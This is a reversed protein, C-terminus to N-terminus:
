SPKISLSSLKKSTLSLKEIWAWIDNPTKTRLESIIDDSLIKAFFWGVKTEKNELLDLKINGNKQDVFEDSSGIIKKEVLYELWWQNLWSFLNDALNGSWYKAIWGDKKIQDYLKIFYERSKEEFSRIKNKDFNRKRDDKGETWKPNVFKSWWTDFKVNWWWTEEYGLYKWVWSDALDKKATKKEKEKYPKIFTEELKWSIKDINVIEKDLSQLSVPQGYIPIKINSLFFEKWRKMTKEGIWSLLDSTSLWVKFVARLIGICFLTYILYWISWWVYWATDKIIDWWQIQFSGNTGYEWLRITDNSISVGATWEMFKAEYTNIGSFGWSISHDGAWGGLGLFFWGCLLIAMFLTALVTIPAFVAWLVNKFKFIDGNVWLTSTNNSLIGKLRGIGLAEEGLLTRLAILPWLVMWIWILVLRALNILLLAILPTIFMVMLFIKIFFWISMSKLGQIEWVWSVNATNIDTYDFFKFVAIWFHMLPGAFSETNPLVKELAGAWEYIIYDKDNTTGNTICAPMTSGNQNNEYKIYQTRPICIRQVAVSRTIDPSHSIISSGVNSIWLMGITSLDILTAVIFYSMNIAFSAMIIRAVAWFTITNKGSTATNYILTFIGGLLMINAVIRVINWSQFFYKSLWFAEGNALNNSMLKGTLNAIPIWIWSLTKALVILLANMSTLIDTESGTTQAFWLTPICLLCLVWLM